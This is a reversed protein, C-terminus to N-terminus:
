RKQIFVVEIILAFILVKIIPDNLNEIFKRFFSKTKEKTLSNGGHKERSAIVEKYSLGVIGKKMKKGLGDKNKM